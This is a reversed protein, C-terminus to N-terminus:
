PRDERIVRPYGSGMYHESEAPSMRHGARGPKPICQVAAVASDQAADAAPPLVRRQGRSHKVLHFPRDPAAAGNTWSPLVCTNTTTTKM